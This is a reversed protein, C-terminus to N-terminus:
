PRYDCLNVRGNSPPFKGVAFQYIFGYVATYVSFFNTRNHSYISNTYQCSQNLSSYLVQRKDSTAQRKDSTAQRKDGLDISLFAMPTKLSPSNATQAIKESM